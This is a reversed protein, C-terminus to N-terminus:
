ARLYRIWNDDDVAEFFYATNYHKQGQFSGTIASGIYVGDVDWNSTNDLSGSISGTTIYAEIYVPFDTIDSVVHTHGLASGTAITIDFTTSDGKTFTIVSAAVSATTLLSGTNASGASGTAVTLTFTSLDGKTLTIRNSSISATHLYADSGSTILKKWNPM